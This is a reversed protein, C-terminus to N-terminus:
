KASYLHYHWLLAPARGPSRRNSVKSVIISGATAAAARTANRNVAVAGRCRPVALQHDTCDAPQTHVEATLLHNKKKKKQDVKASNNCLKSMETYQANLIVHTIFSDEGRRLVISLQLHGMGWQWDPLWTLWSFCEISLLYENAMGQYPQERTMIMSRMWEM